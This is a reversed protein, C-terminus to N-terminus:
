KQLKWLVIWLLCDGSPRFKVCDLRGASSRIHFRCIALPLDNFKLTERDVL